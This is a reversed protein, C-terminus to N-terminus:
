DHDMLQAVTNMSISGFICILTCESPTYVVFDRVVDKREDYLGFLQMQDEDDSVEMLLETDRFIRDLRRNIRDRLAPTCSAYDFVYLSKVGKMLAMAERADPDSVAAVRVVGKVAGTALRGLRVVDVGECHSYEAIFSTIQAKPIRGEPSAATATVSGLLLLFLLIKKM